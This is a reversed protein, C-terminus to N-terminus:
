WLLGVLNPISFCHQNARLGQQHPQGEARDLDVVIEHTTALLGTCIKGSSTGGCGQAGTSHTISAGFDSTLMKGHFSGLLPNRQRHPLDIGEELRMLWSLRSRIEV